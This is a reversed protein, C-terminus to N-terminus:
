QRDQAGCWRSEVVNPRVDQPQRMVKFHSVRWTPHLSLRPLRRPNVFSDHRPRSGGHRAQGM